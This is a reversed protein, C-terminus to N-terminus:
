QCVYITTPLCQLAGEGGLVELVFPAGESTDAQPHHAEGHEGEHSGVGM